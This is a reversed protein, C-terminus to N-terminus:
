GSSGLSIRARIVAAVPEGEYRVKELAILPATGAGEAGYAAPDLFPHLPGLHERTVVAQVGPLREARQADVSVLRAHAYPSRLIAGYLTGPPLPLDETYVARGTVKPVADVRPTQGTATGMTPMLKGRAVITIFHQARSTARDTHCRWHRYAIGAM